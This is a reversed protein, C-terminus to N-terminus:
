NAAAKEFGKAIDKFVLEIKAKDDKAGEVKAKCKECCFGVEVKDNGVKIKTNADVAGGSFPCGKQKIQKTVALQYNGATGHKAKDFADPCGGCCFYYTYGDLEKKQDAVAAKGSIPCHGKTAADEARTAVGL